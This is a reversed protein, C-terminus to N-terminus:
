RAPSVYKRRGTANAPVGQSTSNQQISSATDVTSTTKQRGSQINKNEPREEERGYYKADYLNNELDNIRNLREDSLIRLSDCKRLLDDNQSTVRVCQSLSCIFLVALAAIAVIFYEQKM